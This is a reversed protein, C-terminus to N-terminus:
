SGPAKKYNGSITCEEPGSNGASFVVVVNRDYLDKTAVNIPDTPDVDTCSDGSSGWSNTVVRVDYRQQNTLAYDFGTLM